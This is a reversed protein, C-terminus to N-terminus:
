RKCALTIGDATPLMCVADVREDDNFISANLRRLVKTSNDERHHASQQQAYVRGFWLTNDLVILGGPRVLTLAQEFYTEYQAKNADIFIMDFEQPQGQQQQGQAQQQPQPQPQEQEQPQGQGQGQEQEQEQQHGASSSTFGTLRLACECWRAGRGKERKSSSSSTGAKEQQMASRPRGLTLNTLWTGDPPPETADSWIVATCKSLTKLNTPGQRSIRWGAPVGSESGAWFLHYRRRKQRGDDGAGSAGSTDIDADAQVQRWHPRGNVPKSRMVWDSAALQAVLEAAAAAAARAVNHGVEEGDGQQEGGQDQEVLAIRCNFLHTQAKKQRADSGVAATTASSRSGQLGQLTKVADGLKIEILNAVRAAQWYSLGIGPWKPELECGVLGIKGNGASRQQSECSSDLVASSSHKDRQGAVASLSLAMGLTAVGTFVGVELVRAAGTAWVLLQLLAVTDAPSAYEAAKGLTATRSILASLQPHPRISLRLLAAHGAADQSHSKSQASAQESSSGSAAAAGSRKGRANRSAVAKEHRATEAVREAAQQWATLEAASHAFICRDGHPCAEAASKATAHLTRCMAHPRRVDPLPRHYSKVAAMLGDVGIALMCVAVLRGEDARLRSHFSAMETTDHEDGEPLTDHILLVGGPRLLALAAEFHANRSTATPAAATLSVLDYQRGHQALERTAQAETQGDPVAVVEAKCPSAAGLMDRARQAVAADTELVTLEGDSPLARALGLSGYGTRRDSQLVRRARTVRLLLQAFAIAETALIRAGEAAAAAGAVREHCENLLQDDRVGHACVYRLGAAVSGSSEARSSGGKHPTHYHRVPRPAAAAPSPRARKTDGGSARSDSTDRARPKRPM